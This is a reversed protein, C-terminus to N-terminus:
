GDGRQELASAPREEGQSQKIVPETGTRTPNKKRLCIREVIDMIDTNIGGYSM